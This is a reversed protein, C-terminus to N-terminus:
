NPKIEKYEREKFHRGTDIHVTKHLPARGDILMQLNDM